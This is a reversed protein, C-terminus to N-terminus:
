TLTMVVEVVVGSLQSCLLLAACVMLTRWSGVAAASRTTVLLPGRVASAPLRM